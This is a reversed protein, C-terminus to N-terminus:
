GGFASKVMDCFVAFYQLHVVYMIEFVDGLAGLGLNRGFYCTKRDGYVMKRDGYVAQTSGYVMKRDDYVAQTSGYVMKRDDYVAQTSGYVM